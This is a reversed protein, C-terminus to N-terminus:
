NLHSSKQFEAVVKLVKASTDCSNIKKVLMEIERVPTLASFVFEMYGSPTKAVVKYPHTIRKKLKMAQSVLSFDQTLSFKVMLDHIRSYRGYKVLPCKGVKKKKKNKIQLDQLFDEYSYAPYLACMNEYAFLPMIKFERRARRLRRMKELREPSYKVGAM